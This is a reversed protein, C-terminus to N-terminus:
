YVFVIIQINKGMSKYTESNRRTYARVALLFLNIIYCFMLSKYTGIHTVVEVM